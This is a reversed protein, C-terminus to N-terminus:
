AEADLSSDGAETAPQGRGGGDGGATRQPGEHREDPSSPQPAKSRRDRVCTSRGARKAVSKLESLTQAIQGPHTVHPAENTAICASLTMLPFNQVQGTRNVATIVGARRDTEDYHLPILADFSQLARNAIADAREPTTVVFFDDGGLHAVLTERDGSARAAEVVLQGTLRLVQDGRQYSYYDNYPKFHNLDFHIVALRGPRRVRQAIEQELVSNGPLGTLPSAGRDRKSRRIMGRVRACLERVDCPKTLYDDAGAEMARLTDEVRERKTLVIIPIQQTTIGSKLKRCVELGSMRPLVLDLVVAAPSEALAKAMGECGELAEAVDFGERLLSQRVSHRVHPDADVILIRETGISDGFPQAPEV